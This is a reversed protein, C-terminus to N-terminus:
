RKILFLWQRKQSHHAFIIITFGNHTSWSPIYCLTPHLKIYFKHQHKNNSLFGINEISIWGFPSRNTVPPCPPEPPRTTMQFKAGTRDSSSSSLELTGFISQWISLWKPSSSPKIQNLVKNVLIQQWKYKLVFIQFLYPVNLAQLKTQKNGNKKQTFKAIIISKVQFLFLRLISLKASLM